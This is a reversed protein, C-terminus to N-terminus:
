VPQEHTETAHLATWLRLPEEVGGLAPGSGLQRKRDGPHYRVRRQARVEPLLGDLHLLPGDREIALLDRRLCTGNGGSTTFDTMMAKAQKRCAQAKVPRRGESCLGEM